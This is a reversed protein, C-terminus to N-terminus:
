GQPALGPEALRRALEVRSRIGLSAFVNRLHHDVTRPSVSLRVAVERNTAGEAVYRAIRLQQPTLADLTVAPARASDPGHRRGSQRLLPGEASGSAEGTARLEARAQAAWTLAGCSEFSFLADRLLARAARPRRRRRLDKGYLLQTRAREYASESADHAALALAFLEDSRAPGAMLARCRALQAPALPDSTAATWLTFGDLASRALAPAGSFVAAEVYCPVALMRQTFHGRGPRNEDRGPGPTGDVLPGLRAAAEHARGLGLDCRALSWQALTAAVGLGHPGAGEGAAGAHGACADADGEVAAAMALVAHHHAASNSQGTGVALELGATAHERARSHHGTRLEGYALRELVRPVVSPPGHLRAGALARTGTERAKTVEGLVLAAATCHLLREPEDELAALETVRHLLARSDAIRGRMMAAMGASYTDVLEDRARPALATVRDVAALYGAPDGLGFSAEAARLLAERAARPAVPTLLRAAALLVERADSVVGGHLEALGQALENLGRVPTLVTLGEFDAPPPQEDQPLSVLMAVPLPPGLRRAVFGLARGSAADLLHANEVCCLVPRAAALHRLLALLAALVPGPSQPAGPRVSPSGSRAPALELVDALAAFRHAGAGSLLEARDTLPQLLAHLGSYPIDTEAAVASTRLVTGDGFSAAADDILASGAAGPEARVLLAGGNRSRDRTRALLDSIAKQAASQSDM